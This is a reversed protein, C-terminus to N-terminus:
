EVTSIKLDDYRIPTGSFPSGWLGPRGGPPEVTEDYTLTWAEPEPQGHTWVKGEVKWSAAGTKRVQLRVQTWTGSKWDYPVAAKLTDSRFLEIQKKGPSIQLKYGGVGCLGASFTPARRGKSTGFMRASIAINEKFNDKPLTLLGFTELPDGPLELFKDGGDAKVAFGGDLVLLDAPAKDLESSQFDLEYLTRSTGAHLTLALTTAAALLLTGTKM